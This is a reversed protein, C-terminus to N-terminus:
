GVRGAGVKLSLANLREDRFEPGRDALALATAHRNDQEALHAYEMGRM